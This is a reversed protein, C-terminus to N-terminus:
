ARDSRKGLGVSKKGDIRERRREIGVCASLHRQNAVCRPRGIEDDHAAVVNREIDDHAREGLAAKRRAGDGDAAEAADCCHAAAFAIECGHMQDIRRGTDVVHMQKRGPRASTGPQRRICPKTKRGPSARNSPRLAAAATLAASASGATNITLRLAPEPM